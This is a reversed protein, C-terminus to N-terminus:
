LNIEEIAEFFAKLKNHDKVGPSCEVGSSVDVAYPKVTRIAEGVNQPNLGGSLILRGYQKAKVAVNWDFTTGTGGLTGDVYTDLMFAKGKLEGLTEMRFQPSVRFATYYPVHLDGTGLSNVHDHVQLCRVGSSAVIALAEPRSLQAVVGVPTVFPPLHQIIKKAREPDLYRPSSQVFIFGIASAGLAVAAEADEARTIGCIKVKVSV